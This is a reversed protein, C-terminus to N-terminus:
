ELSDHMAVDRGGVDEYRSTAVTFGSLIWKETVFEKYKSELAQERRSSNVSNLPNGGVAQETCGGGETSGLAAGLNASSAIVERRTPASIRATSSTNRPAAPVLAAPACDTM